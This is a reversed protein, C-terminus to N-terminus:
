RLHLNLKKRKNALKEDPYFKKRMENIVAVTEQSFSTLKNDHFYMTHCAGSCFWVKHKPSILGTENPCHSEYCFACYSQNFIGNSRWGDEDFATSTYEETHERRSM